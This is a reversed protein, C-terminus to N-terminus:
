VRNKQSQRWYKGGGCLWREGDIRAWKEVTIWPRFSRPRSTWSCFFTNNLLCFTKWTCFNIKCLLLWPEGLPQRNKEWSYILMQSAAGRHVTPSEPISKLFYMASSTPLWVLLLFIWLNTGGGQRSMSLTLGVWPSIGLPQLSVLLLCKFIQISIAWRPGINLYVRPMAGSYDMM